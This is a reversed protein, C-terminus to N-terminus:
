MKTPKMRPPRDSTFITAEVKKPAIEPEDTASVAEIPETIIRFQDQPDTRSYEKGRIGKEADKAALLVTWDKGAPVLKATVREIYPDLVESLSQLASRVAEINSTAM